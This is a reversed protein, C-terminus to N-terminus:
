ATTFKTDSTLYHNRMSSVSFDNFEQMDKVMYMGDVYECGGCFSM